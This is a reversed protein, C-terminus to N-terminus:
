QASATQGAIRGFTLADTVANGGIRNGAHVGGTVEGAAYLGPIANGEEDLVETSANIKLGGMTHHIAPKRPSAFFPAEEIKLAFSSKGYEPDEGADVYSNYAEISALFNAKQTEDYGMKDALEELTDAMITNGREVQEEWNSLWRSDEAINIDAIMFFNGGNEIAASALVDRPASENVFRNGESNVFIYNATSMPILGTFLDGSEPDAIAMLQTFETGTTAAGLATAMVIGDGTSGSANTCGIDDPINGWYNDTEQVMKLNNGYGGTALIVGKNAHLTVPTGDAQVAEVGCVRGEDDTLLSQGTTEYLITGGKETIAPGLVAVYEQGKDMSPNHGRRWMGGTAQTVVDQWQMGEEELWSVTGMANQTMTSALDYESYITEGDLSERLGYYYTMITHLEISDFHKSTDGALYENIQDKLTLFDAQYAEPFDNVDMAAFSELTELEGTQVDFQSAWETDAANLVGGCVVTNGGLMATKEIVIVSAGNELASVAASMGAGGGGVVIIDATEEIPDQPQAYGDPLAAASAGAEEIAANVASKIASSTVTAGTVADIKTTQKEVIQAPIRELAVGAVYPTESHETIEVSDITNEGLTVTVTLAANRGMVSETYTGPTFALEAGGGQAAAIAAEAATKVAASTVSAGAVGDIEASQAELIQDALPTLDNGLVPSTELDGEATVETITGDEVTVTVSVPGGFGDASATGTAPEAMATSALVLASAATLPVILKKVKM